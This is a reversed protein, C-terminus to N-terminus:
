SKLPSVAIELHSALQMYAALVNSFELFHEGDEAGETNGKDIVCVQQGVTVTDDESVLFEKIKGPKTETYRVDITVKDTEIQLLVDDENVVDGAALLFIIM